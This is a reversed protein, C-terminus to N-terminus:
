NARQLDTLNVTSDDNSLFCETYNSAGHNEAADVKRSIEYFFQVQQKITKIRHRRLGEFYQDNYIVYKCQASM